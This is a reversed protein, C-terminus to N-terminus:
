KKGEMFLSPELPYKGFLSSDYDYREWDEIQSTNYEQIAIESFGAAKFVKALSIRDYLWRNRENQIEVDLGPSLRLLVRRVVAWVLKQMRFVLPAPSGDFYTPRRPSDMSQKHNPDVVFNLSDGNLYKLYTKDVNNARLVEAMRGGSKKRVAQDIVNLCSWEYRFDQRADTGEQDLVDLQQVYERAFFELDPTSIRCIGGPKLVRHLERLAHIGEEYSLHEFVHFSYM